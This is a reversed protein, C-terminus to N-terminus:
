TGGRSVYEERPPLVTIAEGADVLRAPTTAPGQGVLVRGASVAEVARARSAVLGRRVLEADLRRRM